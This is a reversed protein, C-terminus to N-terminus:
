FQVKKPKYYYKVFSKVRKDSIVSDVVKFIPKMENKIAQNFSVGYSKRILCFHNKHLKMAIEKETINRPCVRFGDYYGM